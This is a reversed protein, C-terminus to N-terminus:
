VSVSLGRGPGRRTPAPLGTAPHGTLTHNQMPRFLKASDLGPRILSADHPKANVVRAPAAAEQRRSQRRDPPNAPCSPYAGAEALRRFETSREGLTCREPLM